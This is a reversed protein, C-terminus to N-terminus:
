IVGNLWMGNILVGHWGLKLCHLSFPSWNSIFGTVSASDGFPVVTIGYTPVNQGPSRDYCNLWFVERRKSYCYLSQGCAGSQVRVPFSMCYTTTPNRWM